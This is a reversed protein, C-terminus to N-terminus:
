DRRKLLFLMLFLIGVVIALGLIYGLGGHAMWRAVNAGGTMAFLVVIFGVALLVALFGAGSTRRRGGDNPPVEDAVAAATSVRATEHVPKGCGSCFKDDPKLEHGCNGCYRDEVIGEGLQWGVCM